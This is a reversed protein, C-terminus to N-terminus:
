KRSLDASNRGAIPSASRAQPNVTGAPARAADQPIPTSARPASPDQALSENVSLEDFDAQLETEHAPAPGWIREPHITSDDLSPRIQDGSYSNDHSSFSQDSARYSGFSQDAEGISDRTVSAESRRQSGFDIQPAQLKALPRIDELYDVKNEINDALVRWDELLDAIHYENFVDFDANYRRCNEIVQMGGDIDNGYVNIYGEIWNQINRGIDDDHINNDSIFRILEPQDLLLIRFSDDDNRRLLNQTTDQITYFLIAELTKNGTSKAQYYTELLNNIAAKYEQMDNIAEASSVLVDITPDFYSKLEQNSQATIQAIKDWFNEGHTGRPASEVSHRSALTQGSARSHYSSIRSHYSVVDDDPNVPLFRGAAQQETLEEPSQGHASAPRNDM